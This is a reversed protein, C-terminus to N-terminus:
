STAKKGKFHVGPPLVPTFVADRATWGRQKVREWILKWGVGSIESWEAPSRIVGDIELLVSNRRNRVQQTKDAWRCNGPEYDGNNDIRDITLGPPPRGMDAIFNEFSDLWRQCMRIGRGGYRPDDTMVRRRAASWSYYGPAQSLGHKYDAHSKGRRINEKHLCGCSKTAGSVIHDHRAIKERGCECICHWMRARRGSRLAGDRPVYNEARSIITLRGYKKGTLDFDGTKKRTVALNQDSVSKKAMNFGEDTRNTLHRIPICARHPVAIIGSFDTVQTNKAM